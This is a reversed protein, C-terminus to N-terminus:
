IGSLLVIGSGNAADSKIRPALASMVKFNNIMGGKTEWEVVTMEQGIALDVVDRRFSVLIATGDTLQDGPRIDEIGQIRKVRDFVQDGSGDTFFARLQGFQVPSVYLVYPGYYRDAEAAAIAAIVDTQVNTATGWDSGSVTNINPHNTYGFLYNQTVNGGGTQLGGGTGGTTPVNMGNFLVAEMAEVVKQGATEIQTTDIPTGHGNPGASAQQRRIGIQFDKHFIPVPVSILGFTVSDKEGETAANFDVNAASMDGLREYQSLLTGLGGALPFSLGRAVLDSIGILRQRQVGVLINDLEQWEEKRLLDNTRLAKVNMGNMVLTRAPAGGGALFGQAHSVLAQGMKPM